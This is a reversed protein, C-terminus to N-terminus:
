AGETIGSPALDAPKEVSRMNPQVGTDKAIRKMLGALVSGPGPELFDRLGAGLAHRMSREWLVSACM